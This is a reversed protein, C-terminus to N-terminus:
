VKHISNTVVGWITLEEEKFFHIDDYNSNDAQLYWKNEKKKLRKITLEGDIVAIVIKNPIPELARDIILIDGDFIGAGIMSDGAVTVLFTAEPHKILHENLDIRSEIYDEAPSPFGAQSTHGYLPLKIKVKNEIKKISVISNNVKFKSIKTM